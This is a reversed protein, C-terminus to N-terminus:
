RKRTTGTTEAWSSSARPPSSASTESVCSTSRRATSTEYREPAAFVYRVRRAFSERHYFGSYWCYRGDELEILPHRAIEPDPDLRRVQTFDRFM